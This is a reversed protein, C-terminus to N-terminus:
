PSHDPEYDLNFVDQSYYIQHQQMEQTYAWVGTKIFRIQTDQRLKHEIQFWVDSEHNIKYVFKVLSGLKLLQNSMQDEM